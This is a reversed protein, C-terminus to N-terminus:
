PHSMAWLHMCLMNKQMELVQVLQMPQMLLKSLQIKLAKIMKNMNLNIGLMQHLNTDM